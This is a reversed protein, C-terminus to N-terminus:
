IEKTIAAVVVFEGVTGASLKLAFGENQNFRPTKIAPVVPIFNTMAVFMNNTMAVQATASEESSGYFPFLVAGETASTATHVCTFGTLAPDTSDLLNPTVTTGGVIASIRKLDFQMAAGTVATNTRIIWLGRLAIKQGAGTNLCALYIRGSAAAIAPTTILWAAEEAIQTFQEHVTNGGVVREFTRLKKGTSDAPLQIYSEAM